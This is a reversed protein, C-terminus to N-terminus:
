AALARRRGSGRPDVPHRVRHSSRGTLRSGTTGTTGTTGPPRRGGIAFFSSQQRIRDCATHQGGDTNM